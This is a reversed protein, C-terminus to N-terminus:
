KRALAAKVIAAADDDHGSRQFREVAKDYVSSEPVPNHTINMTAREKESQKNYASEEGKEVLPQVEAFIESATMSQYDPHRKMKRIWSELNEADPTKRYLRELELEFKVSDVKSSEVAGKISNLVTQSTTVGQPEQTPAQQQLMAQVIQEPTYGASSLEDTTYGTAEVVKDGLKESFDKTGLKSQLSTYAKELEEPSAYKGAYKKPEPTGTPATGPASTDVDPAESNHSEIQAPTGTPAASELTDMNQDSM